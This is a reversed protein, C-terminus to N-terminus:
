PRVRVRHLANRLRGGQAVLRGGTINMNTNLSYSGLFRANRYDVNSIGGSITQATGQFIMRGTGLITGTNAHDISANLSFDFSGINIFPATGGDQMIVGGIATNQTFVPYNPRDAPVVATDLSSPAVPHPSLGVVGWNSSQNWDTSANGTWVRKVGTTTVQATGVRLGSTATVMTTGSRIGVMLGTSLNIDVVSLDGSSWTVTAGPVTEGMANRVVASAQKEVGPVITYPDPQIEIYGDPFQVAANVLLTFAFTSVTSPMNLKWQKIPSTEFESLVANYQYYPQAPGTFTDVGDAVVNIAGTGGTVTPGSAFFVRVGSPDLTSGDLTGLPQPIRNRVSTNFTFDGTGADYNANNTIVDVYVHQNGILIKAGKTDGSSESEKEGCTVMLKSRDAICNVVTLNKSRELSSGEEGSGGSADPANPQESCAALLAALAIATKRRWTWRMGSIVRSNM